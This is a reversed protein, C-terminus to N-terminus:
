SEESEGQITQKSESPRPPTLKKDIADLARKLAEITFVTNSCPQEFLVHHGNCIPCQEPNSM